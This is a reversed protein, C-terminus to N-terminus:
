IWKTFMVLNISHFLAIYSKKVRKLTPSIQKIQNVISETCNYETGSKLANLCVLLTLFIVVGLEEGFKKAKQILMNSNVPLNKARVDNIWTFRANELLPKKYPRDRTSNM